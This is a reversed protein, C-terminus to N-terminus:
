ESKNEKVVKIPIGYAVVLIEKYEKANPSVGPLYLRKKAFSEYGSTFLIIKQDKNNKKFNIVDSM